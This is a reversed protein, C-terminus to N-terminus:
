ARDSTGLPVAKEEFALRRGTFEITELASGDIGATHELLARLERPLPVGIEAQLSEIKARSLAPALELAVEDGDEDVLETAEALRIEEAPDM